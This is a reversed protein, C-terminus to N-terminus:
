VFLRCIHSTKHIETSRHANKTVYNMDQKLFDKTLFTAITASEM